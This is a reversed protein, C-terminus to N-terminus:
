ESDEVLKQFDKEDMLIYRDKSFELVLVPIKSFLIPNEKLQDMWEKKVTMSKKETAKSELVYCGKMLDGPSTAKAGSQPTRKAKLDKELKKEQKISKRKTNSKKKSTIPKFALCSELLGLTLINVKYFSCWGSKNYKCKDCIPM